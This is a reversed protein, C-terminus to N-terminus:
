AYDVQNIQLINFLDSFLFVKGLSNRCYHRITGYIKIAVKDFGSAKSLLICEKQGRLQCFQLNENNLNM